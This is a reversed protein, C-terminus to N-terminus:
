YKTFGQLLFACVAWYLVIEASQFDPSMFWKLYYKGVLGTGFAVLVMVSALQHTKQAIHEKTNAASSSLQRLVWPGWAKNVAMNFATMGGAAMCGVSYIGVIELTFMRELVVRDVTTILIGSLLFVSYPIGLTLTRKIKEFELKFKMQYRCFIWLIALLFIVFYVAIRAYIFGVWGIKLLCISYLELGIILVSTVIELMSSLISKGDLRLIKLVLDIGNSFFVIPPLFLFITSEVGFFEPKGTFCLIGLIFVVSFGLM